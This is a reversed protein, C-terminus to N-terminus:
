ETCASTAAQNVGARLMSGAFAGVRYAGKAVIANWVWSAGATGILQLPSRIGIQGPIRVAARSAAVAQSLAQGPTVGGWTSAVFPASVMSVPTDLGIGHGAISAVDFDM